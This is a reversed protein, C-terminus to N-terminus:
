VVPRGVTAIEVALEQRQRDADFGYMRTPQNLVHSDTEHVFYLIEGCVRAAEELVSDQCTGLITIDHEAAAQQLAALVDRRHQQGFSDGLEDLILVQGAAESTAASSLLAALVLQITFLKEAATNIQERYSVMDGDVHRRWRPTVAWRWTEDAAAPRECTVHLEAGIGGAARNLEDLKASIARLSREIAEEIADQVLELQEARQDVERGALELEGTRRQRNTAITEAAIDDSELTTALWDDLADVLSDFTSDSHADDDTDDVAGTRARVASRIEGTPADDPGDIDLARLADSLKTNALNKL